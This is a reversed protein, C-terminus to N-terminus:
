CEEFELLYNIISDISELYKLEFREDFEIAFEEEILLMFEMLGISDLGCEKTLSTSDMINDDIKVSLKRLISRVRKKLDNVRMNNVM